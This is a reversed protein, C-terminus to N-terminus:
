EFIMESTFKFTFDDGDYIPLEDVGLCFGNTVCSENNASEYLIWPGNASSMDGVLGFIEDVTHGFGSDGFIVKLEKQNENLLEYLTLADTKFTKKDILIKDEDATQDILTISITKDGTVPKPMLFRIGFYAVVVFAIMAIIAIIKKKNM